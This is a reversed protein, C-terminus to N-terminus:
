LQQPHRRAAPVDVDSHEPLVWSPNGVAVITGAEDRVQVRVYSGVPDRDLDFAYVGGHVDRAPVAISTTAPEPRDLHPRDVQGTVIELTAGAPLDSATVQAPLLDKDTHLVGGMAPLDAVTVDLAGRWAGADAFWARGRRLSDTLDTLEVSPSWVHTLYNFPQNIWDEAFHDDSVGTGTFFVANRAAVDFVYLLDELQRNHGIEVIDAGLANTTLVLETLEHPTNTGYMAGLPHNFSALAGHEHITEVMARARDADWRHLPPGDEYRPLALEGGFWNLHRVLSVELSEYHRVDPFREAYAELVHRRLALARGNERETRRFRLRDVVVRAERGDVSRLGIRLHHLSNDAAVLDPWLVAIDDVPRLTLRQWGGTGAPREVVGLLGAGETFHRTETGACLRYQLRYKGAPRGGSAPHYSSQIEVVLAANEPLTEALVDLEVTTDALSTSYRMNWADGRYWLTGSAGPASRARLRLARGPEDPSHPDDVFEGSQVDLAGEAEAVWAWRLEQHEESEVPGDFRVAKRYGYASVRFDHDTWWLVDVGLRRAEALHAEYSATQESFSAHLHMAM